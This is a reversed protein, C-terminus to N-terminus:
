RCIGLSDASIRTFRTQFGGSQNLWFVGFGRKLPAIQPPTPLDGAKQLPVRQPWMTPNADVVAANVEPDSESGALWSLGVHDITGDSNRDLPAATPSFNDLGHSAVPVGASPRGSADVTRVQLERSGNKYTPYAIMFSGAGLAAIAIEEPRTNSDANVGFNFPTVSESSADVIAGAVKEEAAHWWAVGFHTSSGAVDPQTPGPIKQNVKSSPRIPVASARLGSGLRAITSLDNSKLVHARLYPSSSSSALVVLIKNNSSAIAFNTWHELEDSHFSRLSNSSPKGQADIHLVGFGWPHSKSEDYIRSFLFYGNPTRVPEAHPLRDGSDGILTTRYSDVTQGTPSLLGTSLIKDDDIRAVFTAAGMPTASASTAPLMKPTGPNKRNVEEMQLSPPEDQRCCVEDTQNDCDNDKGDCHWGDDYVEGGNGPNITKSDDDCDVQDDPRRPEYGDPAGTCSAQEDISTGFGDGDSDAYKVFTEIDSERCECGDASLDDNLDRFGSACSDFTCAGMECAAETNPAGGVCDSPRSCERAATTDTDTPSGHGDGAQLDSDLMTPGFHTDGADVPGNYEPPKLCGSLGVSVLLAATVSSFLTHHRSAM